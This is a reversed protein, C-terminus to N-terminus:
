ILLTEEDIHSAPVAIMKLILKTCCYTNGGCCQYANLCCTSTGCCHYGDQCTKTASCRQGNAVDIATKLSSNEVAVQGAITEPHWLLLFAVCLFTAGLQPNM